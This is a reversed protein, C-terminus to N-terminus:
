CGSDLVIVRVLLEACACDKLLITRVRPSRNDLDDLILDPFHRESILWLELDVHQRLVM